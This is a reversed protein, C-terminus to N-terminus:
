KSERVMKARRGDRSSSRWFRSGYIPLQQFEVNMQDGKNSPPV